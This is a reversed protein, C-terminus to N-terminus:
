LVRGVGGMSSERGYGFSPSPKPPPTQESYEANWEEQNVYTQPMKANLWDNSKLHAKYRKIGELITDAQKQSKVKAKLKSKTIDWNASNSKPYESRFATFFSEFDFGDIYEKTTKPLRQEKIHSPEKTTQAIATEAKGCHRKGGDPSTCDLVARLADMDVRFFPVPNFGERRMELVGLLKLKAKASDQERRTLGTESEWEEITKYFWGDEKKSSWYFAQQFLIVANVSGLHKVLGPAYAIYGGIIDSLWDPRNM